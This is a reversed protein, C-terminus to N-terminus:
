ATVAGESTTLLGEKAYFRRVGETLFGELPGSRNEETGWWTLKDGIKEPNHSEAFGVYVQGGGLPKKLEPHLKAQLAAQVVESVTKPSGCYLVEHPPKVGRVCPPFFSITIKQDKGKSM